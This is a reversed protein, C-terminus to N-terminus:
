PEMGQVVSLMFNTAEEVVKGGQTGADVLQKLLGNLFDEDTIGFAEALLVRGLIKDPHDLSIEVVEERKSVKLANSRRRAPRSASSDALPARAPQGFVGRASAPLSRRACVKKRVKPTSIRKARSPWKPVRTM